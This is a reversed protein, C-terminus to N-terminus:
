RWRMVLKMWGQTYTFGVLELQGSGGVAFCVLSDQPVCRFGLLPIERSGLFRPPSPLSIRRFRFWVFIWLEWAPLGASSLESSPAFVCLARFLRCVHRYSTWLSLGICPISLIPHLLWAHATSLLKVWSSRNEPLVSVAENHLGLIMAVTQAM